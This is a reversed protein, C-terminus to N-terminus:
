NLQPLFLRLHLSLFGALAVLVMLGRRARYDAPSALLLAVALTGAMAALVQVLDIWGPLRARPGNVLDALVIAGCIAACTVMIRRM